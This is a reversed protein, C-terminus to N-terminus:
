AAPNLTVTYGLAQLERINGNGQRPQSAGLKRSCPLYTDRLRRSGTAEAVAPEQERMAVTRRMMEDPHLGRGSRSRVM